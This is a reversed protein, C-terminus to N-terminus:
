GIISYLIFCQCQIHIQFSYEFDACQVISNAYTLVLLNQHWTESSSLNLLHRCNLCNYSTDIDTDTFVLLWWCCHVLFFIISNSTLKAKYTHWHLLEAHLLSQLWTQGDLKSRQYKCPLLLSRIKALQVRVVEPTSHCVDLVNTHVCVFLYILLSLLTHLNSWSCIVLPELNQCTQAVEQRLIDFERFLNCHLDM